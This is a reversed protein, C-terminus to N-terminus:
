RGAEEAASESPGVASQLAARLRGIAGGDKPKYHGPLIQKFHTGLVHRCARLTEHDDEDVSIIQAAEGRQRSLESLLRVMKARDGLVIRAGERGGQGTLHLGRYVERAPATNKGTVFKNYFMKAGAFLVEDEIPNRPPCSANISVPEGFQRSFTQTKSRCLVQKVSSPAVGLVEAIQQNGLGLHKNLYAIKQTQTSFLMGLTLADPVPANQAHNVRQPTTNVTKHAKNGAKQWIRGVQNRVVKPPIGLRKGIAQSDLHHCLIMSCIDKQQKSLELSDVAAPLRPINANRAM